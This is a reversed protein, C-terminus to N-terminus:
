PLTGLPVVLTLLAGEDGSVLEVAGGLGQVREIISRPGSGDKSLTFHDFSGSVPFGAGNDQIVLRLCDDVVEASLFLRTAKGHRVANSTAERILHAM